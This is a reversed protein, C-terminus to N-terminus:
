EPAKLFEVIEQLEQKAEDIGAVDNFTVNPKESALLLKRGGTLRNTMRETQKFLFYISYLLLLLPLCLKLIEYFLSHDKTVEIKVNKALLTETTVRDNQPIRTSFKRNGAKFHGSVNQDDLTVDAIKDAQVQTLFDSFPLSSDKTVFRDYTFYGATALLLVIIIINRRTLIKYARELLKKM